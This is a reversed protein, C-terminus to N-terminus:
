TLLPGIEIKSEYTESCKLNVPGRRVDKLSESDTREQGKLKKFFDPLLPRSAKAPEILKHTSM